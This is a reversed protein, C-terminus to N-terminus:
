PAADFRCRIVRQQGEVAPLTEVFQFGTRPDGDWTVQRMEALRLRHTIRFEDEKGGQDRVPAKDTARWTEDGRRVRRKDLLHAVCRL